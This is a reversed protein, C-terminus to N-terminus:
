LIGFLFEHNETFSNLGIINMADGIKFKKDVWVENFELLYIDFNLYFRKKKKVNKRILNNSNLIIYIYLYEL